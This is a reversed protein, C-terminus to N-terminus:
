EKTIIDFLNIGLYVVVDAGATLVIVGVIGPILDLGVSLIDGPALTCVTTYVIWLLFIIVAAFVFRLRRTTKIEATATM